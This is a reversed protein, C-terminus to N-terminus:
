DGKEIRYSDSDFHQTSFEFIESDEIGTFRHVLGPPLHLSDGAKMELVEERGDPHWLEMKLRGSQVYFTETKLKHFHISCRKGAKLVLKKGCYLEDNHIWYEGGWGKPVYKIDNLM